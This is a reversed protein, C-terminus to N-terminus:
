DHNAEFASYKLTLALTCGEQMELVPEGHIALIPRGEVYLVNGETEIESATVERGVILAVKKLIDIELQAWLQPIHDIM